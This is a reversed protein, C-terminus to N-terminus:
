LLIEAQQHAQLRSRQTAHYECQNCSYKVGDHVSDQHIKLSGQTTAHYECQNCSYKVGIHISQQHKKLNGQTTAKYKCQGCSYVIGEHKSTTHRMLGSKSKFMGMCVECKYMQKSYNIEDRDPINTALIEDVTSSISNKNNEHEGDNVINKLIEPNPKTRAMNEDIDHYERNSFPNGKLFCKALQSIQLDEAADILIDMNGESFRAEGLYIFHLIIRLKEQKVGRLYILPHSYPNDLLLNKLVPSCASLVYKYAHFQIIV